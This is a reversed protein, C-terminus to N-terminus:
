CDEFRSTMKRKPSFPRPTPWFQGGKGEARGPRETTFRPTYKRAPKRPTAGAPSSSETTTREVSGHKKKNRLIRISSFCKDESWAESM